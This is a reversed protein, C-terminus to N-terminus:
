IIIRTNCVWRHHENEEDANGETVELMGYMCMIGVGIYCVRQRTLTSEESFGVGGGPEGEEGRDGVRQSVAKACSTNMGIHSM